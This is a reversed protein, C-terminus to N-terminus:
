QTDKVQQELIYESNEQIDWFNAEKYKICIDEYGDANEPTTIIAVEKNKFLGGLEYRVPKSETEECTSVTLSFVIFNMAVITIFLFIFIFILDRIEM